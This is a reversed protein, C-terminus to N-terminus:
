PSAPSGLAARVLGRSAPSSLSLAFVADLPLRFRPDANTLIFPAAFLMVFGTATPDLIRRQRLLVLITAGWWLWSPLLQAVQLAIEAPSDALRLNPRWMLNYWKFLTTELADLPASSAFRMACRVYTEAAVARPPEAVACWALGAPLSSEANYQQRVASAAAPNNGAFLNYPGNSPRFAPGGTIVLSFVVYAVAASATALLGHKAPFRLTRPVYAAIWIAPLVSLVNPRVMALAGLLAGAVSWASYRTTGTGFTVLGFIALMAVVNVNNDNLRFLNVLV